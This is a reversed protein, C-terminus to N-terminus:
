LNFGNEKKQFIQLSIDSPFLKICPWVILLGFLVFGSYLASRNNDYNLRSFLGRISISDLRCSDIQKFGFQEVLSKLQNQNFYSLHPSPFHRQWMREMPKSFGIRDMLISLRYFFGNSMPLNIALIGNNKLLRNSKILATDLNPLHEFVDNFTIVDFLIDGPAADPFVGPYIKRNELVEPLIVHTEPEIGSANFGRDAAAELMWGHGCGVDLLRKGKSTTFKQIRNLIQEFNKLRIDEIGKIRKSEDVAENKDNNTKPTFNSQLFGCNTCEFLWRWRRTSMDSSCVLCKKRINSSEM